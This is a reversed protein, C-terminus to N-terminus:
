QAARLSDVLSLNLFATENFAPDIEMARVLYGEAAVLDGNLLAVYGVNNLTEARQGPFSGALAQDYNGSSALAIRLNRQTQANEPDLSLAIVLDDIADDFRRQLIRSYGRNNHLQASAPRLSLANAYSSEAAEWQQETDQIFALAGWARWLDPDAAVAAELDDRSDTANGSLLQAIAKGQLAQPRVVPDSLLQTFGIEARRLDGIALNIEAMLLNARVSHPEALLAREAIASADRYRQEALATDALDLAKASVPQIVIPENAIEPEPTAACAALSFAAVVVIIPMRPLAIHRAISFSM